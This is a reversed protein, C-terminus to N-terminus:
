FWWWDCEDIMESEEKGDKSEVKVVSEGEKEFLFVRIM